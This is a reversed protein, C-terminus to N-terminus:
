ALGNGEIRTPTVRVIAGRPSGAPLAVSAYHPSWGREGEAVIDLPTGIWQHLWRGHRTAAAARLEAARARAVAPPVAPMRAAPTGARPSYAFIHAHVIDCDDLLKLSKAHAEASETPFGAIIDAGFAMDPRIGKIREVLRVADARAHRRKMRKLVLDDGSQLSLHLHPMLRPDALAELLAPDAEAADLSSLRLRPLAPVRTLLAQVLTGFARSGPLDQGWSTVDVGTLVIENVGQEVLRTVAAVVTEIPASRAPGRAPAIICFTCRHDCGDQVAVFGRARATTALANPWAPLGGGARQRSDGGGWTPSSSQGTETARWSFPDFKARNGILRVPLDAFRQPEVEAACGTVIIDAGPHDRLARKAAARADRVAEATVACSNIVTRGASLAALADAQALNLRCGQTVVNSPM